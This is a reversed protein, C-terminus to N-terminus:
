KSGKQKIYVKNMIDHKEFMMVLLLLPGCFSFLLSLLFDIGNVDREDYIAYLMCFYGVIFWLIIFLIIM